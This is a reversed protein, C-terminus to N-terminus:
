YDGSIFDCLKSSFTSHNTFNFDEVKVDGINRIFTYTNTWIDCEDLSMYKTINNWVISDLPQRIKDDESVYGVITEALDQPINELPEGDVLLQGCYVSVDTTLGDDVYIDSVQYTVDLM